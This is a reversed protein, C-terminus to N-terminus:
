PPKGSPTASWSIRATTRSGSWSGTYLDDVREHVRAFEVSLAMAWETLFSSLSRSMAVGPPYLKQIQDRYREVLSEAPM